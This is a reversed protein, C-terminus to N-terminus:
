NSLALGYKVVNVNVSDGNALVVKGVDDTFPTAIGQEDEWDWIEGSSGSLGFHIFFIPTGDAKQFEVSGQYQATAVALEVQVALFVDSIVTVVCAVVASNLAPLNDGVGLDIPVSNGSVTGVTVNRQVGIVGAGQNWFINVKQGTTIGHGTSLTLTGTNADTRTTLTGAKGPSLSQQESQQGDPNRTNGGSFVIGGCTVQKQINPM